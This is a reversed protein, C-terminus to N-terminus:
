VLFVGVKIKMKKIVIIDDISIPNGPYLEHEGFVLQTIQEQIYDLSGSCLIEEKLFLLYSDEEIEKLISFSDNNELSEHHHIKHIHNDSVGLAVATVMDNNDVMNHNLDIGSIDDVIDGDVSSWTQEINNGVNPLFGRGVGLPSTTTEAYPQRIAPRAGRMHSQEQHPTKQIAIASFGNALPASKYEEPEIGMVQYQPVYKKHAEPQTRAKNKYFKNSM